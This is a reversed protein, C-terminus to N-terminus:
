GAFEPGSSTRRMLRVRCRASWISTRSPRRETSVQNAGMTASASAPKPPGSLAKSIMFANMSAPAAPTWKSSWSAESFFHPWMPPLTSMGVEACMRLRTAARSAASTIPTEVRTMARVSASAAFSMVESTSSRSRARRADGALARGFTKVAQAVPQLGADGAGDGVRGIAVEDPALGRRRVEVLRLAERFAHVPRMRALHEGVIARGGEVPLLVEVVRRDCLELALQAAM